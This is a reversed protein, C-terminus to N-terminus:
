VYKRPVAKGSVALGLLILTVIMMERFRFLTGYNSVTYALALITIANVLVLFWVFSDRLAGRRAAFFWVFAVAALLVDFLVTDIDIFWWLGRGGGIAVLGSRVAVSHPLLLAALGAVLRPLASRPVDSAAEVPEHPSESPGAPKPVSDPKSAPEQGLQELRKVLGGSRIRTGASRYRDLNDRADKLAVTGSAFWGGPRRLDHISPRLIGYMQPPLFPGAGAIISQSLLVVLAFITALRALTNRVGGDRAAVVAAFPVFAAVTVVFAYYWRISAILYTLAGLVLVETTIWLLRKRLDSEDWVERFADVTVIFLVIVFCFFMDKMGQLSWLILSPMLAVVGVAITTRAAPVGHRTAWSIMLLETGLFAFLNLLVAISPVAGCFWAFVALARIYGVSPLEAPLAIIAPWGGSAAQAAAGYYLIGDLGFFWFGNGLQLSRAIPMRLYSIWFLAQGAFSRLLFGAAVLSAIQRPQKNAITWLRWLAFGAVVLCLTELTISM